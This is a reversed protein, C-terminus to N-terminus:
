VVDIGQIPLFPEHEPEPYIRHFSTWSSSEMAEDDDFDDLAALNADRYSQTISEEEILGLFLEQMEKKAEKKKIKKDMLKKVIASIKLQTEEKVSLGVRIGDVFGMLANVLRNIRGTFCLGISDTLETKVRMKMDEKSPHNEVITMIKQFLDMFTLRHVSHTTTDRSWRQIEHELYIRSPSLMGKWYQWYTRKESHFLAYIPDKVLPYKGSEKQIVQIADLVGHNISTIHVTQDSDLVNEPQEGNGPFADLPEWNRRPEGNRRFMPHIPDVHRRFVPTERVWDTELKHQSINIYAQPYLRRLNELAPDDVVIQSNILQISKVHPQFRPVETLKSKKIHLERLSFPLDPINEQFYDETKICVIDNYKLPTITNWGEIQLEMVDRHFLYTNDFLKYKYITGNKELMVWTTM